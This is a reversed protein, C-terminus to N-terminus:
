YFETEIEEVSSTVRSALLLSFNFYTYMNRDKFAVVDLGM